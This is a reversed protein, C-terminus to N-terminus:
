TLCSPESAADHQKPTVISGQAEGADMHVKVHFCGATPHLWQVQPWAGGLPGRILLMADSRLAPLRPGAPSHAIYLAILAVSAVAVV